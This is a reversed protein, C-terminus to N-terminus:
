KIEFDILAVALVRPDNNNPRHANSYEFKIFNLENPKLFNPSFNFHIVEDSYEITKSGIYHNNISVKITQEGLTGIHITLIGQLGNLPGTKFYLESSEGLSWRHKQEAVSWDIYIIDKSKFTYTSELKINFTDKSYFDILREKHRQKNHLFQPYEWNFINEPHQDIHPEVNWHYGSYKNYLGQITNFYFSMPITIVLFLISLKNILKEKNKLMSSLFIIYLLYIGPLIDVTFRSGYSAGGWWHDFKSIIILHLIIWFIIIVLLKNKKFIDYTTRINILLLLLFPSFVFLGRAPSFLNGFLATWFNLGAFSKPIYYDPLLQNFEKISYIFFGGLFLSILTAVKIATIKKSSFFLYTIITISLLSLTPRTLYAMFLTISLFFWSYNNDKQKIIKLMLFISLLAYFTAFCQSWLAQGLTSSLSTTLWFVFAIIISNKVNFYNKAIAYLLLFIFISIIASIRKQAIDEDIAIVMNKGLFNLEFWVFPLSSISTGIPFYYYYGTKKIRIQGQNNIGWYNKSLDIYKNLKISHHQIMSQSVLLSSRPDSHTHSVPSKFVLSFIFVSLIFLIIRHTNILKFIKSM